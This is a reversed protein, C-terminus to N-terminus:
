ALGALCLAHGVTVQDAAVLDPKRSNKTVGLPLEIYGDGEPDLGLQPEERARQADSFRLRVAVLLAMTGALLRDVQSGEPLLVASQFLAVQAVTLPSRRTTERKLALQVWTAGVVRPSKVVEM